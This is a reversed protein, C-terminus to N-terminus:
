QARSLAKRNAGEFVITKKADIIKGRRQNGFEDVEALTVAFVDHADRKAYIQAVGAPVAAMVLGSVAAIVGITFFVQSMDAWM